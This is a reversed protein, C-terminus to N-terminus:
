ARAHPNAFHRFGGFHSYRGRVQAPAARGTTPVRRGVWVTAGCAGYLRRFPGALCLYGFRATFGGVPM